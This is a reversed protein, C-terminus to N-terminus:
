AAQELIECRAAAFMADTAISMAHRIPDNHMHAYRRTASATKHNLTAGIVILSAGTCAQWSALTHRLDHIRLDNLKARALIRKWAKKPQTMHGTKGYGSLVFIDERNAAKRRRELVEIVHESLPVTMSTNNKTDPIYWERRVMDLESWKMELVNSMRQGTMLALWVFDRATENPEAEVADVFTKLEEPHLFRKREKEDYPKIKTVPNEGGFLKNDIAFNFIKRLLALVRNAAYHGHNNGIEAHLKTVEIRTMTKLQRTQWRLLYRDFQAQDQRWSKKHVKAHLDMYTRFAAGLTAVALRPARIEDATIGAALKGLMEQAKRRAQEITADPYRGIFIRDSKGHVKKRVYFTKTGKCTVLLQLGNVQADLWTEASKNPQPLRELAAKTFNLKKSMECYGKRM